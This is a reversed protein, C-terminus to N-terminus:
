AVQSVSGYAPAVATAGLITRVGDAFSTKPAFGLLHRARTMDAMSDRVDGTRAPRHEPVIRSGTQEEMVDLVQNITISTPSGLNIVQGVAADSRSALMNAEVVDGVYIFGRSQEGDGYIVPRHRTELAHLFLPVVAAYPSAPDQRPGFVNFYRLSVTELGYLQTFVTCLQEGTLKSIAYPSLPDPLLDERKPSIPADGYVAASSAFVLRRVGEDRAAMLVNLTGTVNVDFTGQPDTISQPVSAVAAEHFVVDVGVMARAVACPDRIDARYFTTFRVVDALNLVHGASLDDLVVVDAGDRVLRDVIHSGIFGAGGTVMARM